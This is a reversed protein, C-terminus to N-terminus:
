GLGSRNRIARIGDKLSAWYLRITEKLKHM